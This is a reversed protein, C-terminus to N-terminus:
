YEDQLLLSNIKFEYLLLFFLVANNAAMHVPNTAVVLKFVASEMPKAAEITNIIVFKIICRNMFLAGLEM